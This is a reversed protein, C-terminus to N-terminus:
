GPVEVVVGSPEGHAAAYPAGVVLMTDGGLVIPQLEAGSELVLAAGGDLPAIRARPPVIWKNFTGATYGGGIAAGLHDGPLGDVVTGDEAEVRGPGEPDAWDPAGAWARGGWEGVAGGSGGAAFAGLPDGDFSWAEGSCGEDGCALGLVRETGIAVAELGMVPVLLGREVFLLGDPTAAVLRESGVAWAVAGDVDWRAEGGVRVEGAASVLVAEEGWFGVWVSPADTAVGDRWTQDAGPASAIWGGAQGAVSAGLRDGPQGYTFRAPLEVGLVGEGPLLPDTCGLLTLAYV